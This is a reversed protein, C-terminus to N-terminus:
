GWFVLGRKKPNKLLSRMWTLCDPCINKTATSDVYGQIAQVMWIEKKRIKPKGRIPCVDCKKSSVVRFGLQSGENV